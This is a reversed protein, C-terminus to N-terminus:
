ISMLFYSCPLLLALCSATTLEGRHKALQRRASPHGAPFFHRLHSLSRDPADDQLDRHIMAFDRAGASAIANM